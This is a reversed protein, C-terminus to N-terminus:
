NKLTRMMRGFVDYYVTGIMSVDDSVIDFICPTDVSFGMAPYPQVSNTYNLYCKGRHGGWTASTLDLHMVQYLKEDEISWFKVDVGSGYYADFGIDVRDYMFIGKPSDVYCISNTASGEPLDCVKERTAVDIRGTDANRAIKNLCHNTGKDTAFYIWNKTFVFNICRCIHEEFGSSVGDTLLTWSLGYDSSYWWKSLASDDGSTLYLIETWPDRRIQHFHTIDTAANGGYNQTFVISWDNESTYPYVGRWVHYESMGSTSPSNSYEAFLCIENGSADKTFEVGSNYLWGAPKTVASGFLETLVKTQVDYVYVAGRTNRKTFIIKGSPSYAIMFDSPKIPLSAIKVIKEFSEGYYLSGDDDMLKHFLYGRAYPIKSASIDTNVACLCLNSNESASTTYNISGAIAMPSIGSFLTYVGEVQVACVIMKEANAPVEIIANKLTISENAVSILKNDADVFAWLRGSEGGRGTVTIYEVGNCDYVAYAMNITDIPTLDVTAGIDVGTKIYGNPVFTLERAVIKNIEDINKELKSSEKKLELVPDTFAIVSEPMYNQANIVSAIAICKCADPVDFTITEGVTILHRSTEGECFNVANGDIPTPKGDLFSVYANKNSSATINIRPRINEAILVSKYGHTENNIIWTGNSQVSGSVEELQNLDITTAIDGIKNEIEESLRDVDERVNAAAANATEAAANAAAIAAEAEAKTVSLDIQLKWYTTDTLDVGVPVDQLAFYVRSGDASMVTDKITYTQTPDHKGKPEFLLNALLQAM